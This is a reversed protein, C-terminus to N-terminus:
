TTSDGGSLARSLRTTRALPRLQPRRQSVGASYQRSCEDRDDDNAPVVGSLDSLGRGPRRSRVLSDFDSDVGAALDAPLNAAAPQGGDRGGRVVGGGAGGCDGGG